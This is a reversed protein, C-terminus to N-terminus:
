QSSGTNKTMGSVEGKYVCIQNRGKQKARYLAKDTRGILKECDMGKESSSVGGSITMKGGPQSSEGDFVSTEIAKRIKEAVITANNVEAEQLIVTFEDGGYRSVIDVERINNKLIDAIEKLLYDGSLHGNADNYIKFHDIDFMILSLPRKYRQCWNIEEILRKKFYGHNFIGTLSDTIALWKTEKYLKANEIATSAHQVIISLFKLDDETFINRGPLMKETINVVGKIEGKAKLPVSLFSKTKYGAETSKIRRLRTDKEIDTVLLPKGDLAVLGAIREGLKLRTTEIIHEKIGRAGKIVLEGSSEEMLMLSGKRAELLECAKRIVFNILEDVDLLSSMTEGMQLISELRNKEDKLNKILQRNEINLRQKELGRKIVLKIHEPDFPKVIYDYAEEEIFKIATEITPFGAIMVTYIDQNIKRLERLVELGNMDPLKIDIVALNFFIDKAKAVAESGKASAFVKYGEEKLIGALANRIGIEDDIILINIEKEM